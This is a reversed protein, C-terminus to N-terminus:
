FSGGVRAVVTYGSISWQAGLDDSSFRLRFLRGGGRVPVVRRHDGGGSVEVVQPDSWRIDSDLSGRCGLQVKLKMPSALRVPVHLSLHVEDVYKVRQGDGFDFDPTEALSEYPEPNCDDRSARYYVRGHALLRPAPATDDEGLDPNGLDGGIGIITRPRLGDDVYEYWRKATGDFREGESLSEWTPGVEWDVEGVATIGNLEDSYDDVVVSGSDYNIIAVRTGGGLRPYVFWVESAEKHHHAIIEDARAVDLEANAEPWHAEGVQELERGGSYRYWGKQGWFVISLDKFRTWAYRGVPGEGFVEGRPVMAVTIGEVKQLSQISDRKLIYAYDAIAVVAYVDGNIDSGVNELEGATNAGMTELIAGAGIDSGPSVGGAYNLSKLKVGAAPSLTANSSVLVSEAGFNWVTLTPQFRVYVTPLTDGVAFQTYTAQQKTGFGLRRAVLTWGVSTVEYLDQGLADSTGVSVVDGVSLGHPFETLTLEISGGVLPVQSSSASLSYVASSSRSSEFVQLSTLTGDVSVRSEDEWTLAANPYLTVTAGAPVTVDFAAHNASQLTNTVASVQFFTYKIKSADNEDSVIRVFQDAVFEGSVGDLYVWESVTGTAPVEFDEGIAARGVSASVVIPVWTAFDGASCWKITSGSWLFVHGAFVEVGDYGVGDALGPIPRCKGWKDDASLGPQWYLPNVSPTALLVKDDWNCAVWRSTLSAQAGAFM